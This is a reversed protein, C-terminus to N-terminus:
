TSLFTHAEADSIGELQTLIKEEIVLAMDELTSSDFFASIPVEVDLAQRLHGVARMALLSHGGLEFFNDNASVHSVSLLEEWIQAVFKEAPSRPPIYVETQLGDPGSPAPLASRNVKGNATLPLKGLSVYWGPLMEGPLRASLYARLERPNVPRTGEMVVYAVLRIADGSGKVDVIAARVDRCTALVSAIEEPEVRVGRIKVQDDARGLFELVGDERWRAVDGTRYLREGVGFPSPVFREATLSPRGLYGRALSDGAIHLEGPVGVGTLAGYPDLAYIRTEAIPRGIPVRAADPAADVVDYTTATTAETPGYVNVLRLGPAAKRVAALRRADAAEGGFALIRLPAFMSPDVDVCQHLLATPLAMVTMGSAEICERFSEPTLAEDKRIGVLRAGNLLAGWIEVTAPDFSPNMAQSVVDSPEFDLYQGDCGVRVIGRQTLEVGKPQGTSGSTYYVCARQERHVAPFPRRTRGPFGGAPLIEDIRLVPVGSAFALDRDALVLQAGADEVMFATRVEPQGPDLPLYAAGAILVALMAVVLSASREIALGVVNEPGVGHGALVEALSESRARLEAYTVSQGDFVLAVKDPTAAAPGHFADLVSDARGPGAATGWRALLAREEPTTHTLRSVATGPSALASEILTVYHTMMREVTERDFLDVDYEVSGHLEGTQRPNEEWALTLDFKAVRSPAQHETLSLGPFADTSVPANKMALMVQFLPTRSMDRPPNLADVVQEFPLDQNEYAGLTAERVRVLFDAFGPEDAWRTRLVLTNVFFGVLGEAERHRRGAVPVGVSVDRVGAYRGMLLQFVAMLTMFRTAGRGHSVETLRKTTLSGLKLDFSDGANRRVAPRARDTTLELSLPAGELRDKWYARQAGSAGCDLYERQWAAYDAYQIALPALVDSASDGRLAAQYFAALEDILVGVSWGDSVIHHMTLLLVSREEALRLLRARFLPGRELDFPGLAEVSVYEEVAGDRELDDLLRLDDLALPVRGAAEAIQWVEDNDAEFRTRLSAHRSVLASIATHLAEIDLQGEVDMAVQTNYLPSGPALRDIFWLRRQGFSAPHRGDGLPTIADDALLTQAEKDPMGDIEALLQEEIVLAADKLAPNDFFVSIPVETDLAKRLSIVAYAATLSQGGLDFFNDDAFVQAVGLLERWIEALLQEVPGTLPAGSLGQVADGRSPPPLARRDLKGSLTLPLVDMGVYWTPVMYEPLRAALHDRVAQRDLPQGARPVVYGVLRRDGPRDERVMVAAHGVLPCGALVSDIEGLEVRFGRIKVQDDTRGLFELIGDARWRALDGTRYLREGPGFPNPVFREATLGPQEVYGRALPLGGIFLEGAEGPPRAALFEDLVLMSTNAIPKGIAVNGGSGIEPPCRFYTVDIAAETPGYLNHLEPAVRHEHFRRVLNGALAEGSCFVRRLSATHRELSPEELFAHLMSPVFHLTTISHEAITLALRRPDRHDGPRAMVLTAGALLPWFLEWVSVDFSVPTKQLVKDSSDLPYMDQMWMLRNVVAEHTNMAGKPRGTSGSTFIVYAVSAPHVPVDTRAPSEDMSALDLRLVVANGAPVLGALADSTVLVGADADALMDALREAPYGPDLPVYAAGAKLIGLLAVMLELSRELCVGARSEPGAGARTLARALKNAHEDLAKYTMTHDDFRVAIAEPTRDVQREFLAVLTGVPLDVSPGNWFHRQEAPVPTM